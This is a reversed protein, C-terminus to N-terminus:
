LMLWTRGDHMSREGLKREEAAKRANAALSLEPGAFFGKFKTFSRLRDSKGHSDSGTQSPAPKNSSPKLKSIISRKSKTTALSKADDYDQSTIMDMDVAERVPSPVYYSSRSSIPQETAAERHVPSTTPSHLEVVELTRAIAAETFLKLPPM